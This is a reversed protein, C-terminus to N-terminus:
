TSIKQNHHNSSKYQHYENPKKFAMSDLDQFHHKMGRKSDAMKNVASELARANALLRAHHHSPYTGPSMNGGPFGNFPTGNAHAAALADAGFQGLQPFHNGLKAHAMMAAAAAPNAMLSSQVGASLAASALA